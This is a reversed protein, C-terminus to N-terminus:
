TVAAKVGRWGDTFLYLGKRRNDKDSIKNNNKKIKECMIYWGCSGKGGNGWADGM